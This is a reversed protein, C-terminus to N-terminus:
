TSVVNSLDLLELMLEARLRPADEYTWTFSNTIGNCIDRISCIVAVGCSGCGTKSASSSDPQNPMPVKFRKIQCWKKPHFNDNGTAQNILRLIESANSKLDEPIPCHYGDDFFVTHEIVSFIALGWHCEDPMYVPLFMNTVKETDNYLCINTVVSELVLGTSLFSPLLINQCSQHEENARDCYKLALLNLVEDSLYREGCLLSLEQSTIRYNGYSVLYTGQPNWRDFLAHRVEKEFPTNKFVENVWQKEFSVEARLRKLRHFRQLTRIGNIDFVGYSLIKVNGQADPDIKPKRKRGFKSLSQFNMARNFYSAPLWMDEESSYGKFRVKYEYTFTKECLRRELVDDIEYFDEPLQNESHEEVATELGSSATNLQCERRDVYGMENLRKKSTDHLRYCGPIEESVPILEVPGLIAAPSRWHTLGLAPHAIYTDGTSSRQYLSFRVRMTSDGRLKLSTVNSGDKSSQIAEVRAIDFVKTGKFHRHLLCNKQM